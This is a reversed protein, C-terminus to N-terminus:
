AAAPPHAGCSGVPLAERAREPSTGRARCMPGCPISSGCGHDFHLCAAQSTIGTTNYSRQRSAPDTRRKPNKPYGAKWCEEGANVQNRVYAASVGLPAVVKAKICAECPFEIQKQEPTPKAAERRASRNRAQEFAKKEAETILREKRLWNVVSVYLVRTTDVTEAQREEASKADDRVVVGDIKIIKVDPSQAGVDVDPNRVQLGLIQHIMAFFCGKARKTLSQMGSGKKTVCGAWAKEDEKRKQMQDPRAKFLKQLEQLIEQVTEQQLPLM